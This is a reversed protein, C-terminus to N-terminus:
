IQSRRPRPRNEHIEISCGACAGVVHVSQPDEGMQVIRRAATKTACFHLHAMKTVAHRIQEDWQGPATEGGHLHAIPIQEALAASSAALIELRDGLVMVLDSKLERFAAAMGATGRALSMAPTDGPDYMVVEAAIEFGQALIDSVTDGFGAQLHMGTVVLQLRLKKSAEIAKLVPRWIGFEARTGTVVCVKMKKVGAKM